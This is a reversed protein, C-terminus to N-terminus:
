ILGALEEFKSRDVMNQLHHEYQNTKDELELIMHQLEVNENHLSDLKM